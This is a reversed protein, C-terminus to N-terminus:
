YGIFVILLQDVAKKIRLAIPTFYNEPLSFLWLVEPYRIAKKAVGYIIL